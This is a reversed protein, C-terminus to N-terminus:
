PGRLDGALLIGIVVLAVLAGLYAARFFARPSTWVPCTITKLVSM